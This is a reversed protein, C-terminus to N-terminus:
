TEDQHPKIGVQMPFYKILTKYILNSLHVDSAHDAVATYRVGQLTQGSEKSITGYEGIIFRDVKSEVNYVKGVKTQKFEVKVNRLSKPEEPYEAEPYHRGPSEEFYQGPNEEYYQGPNVEL